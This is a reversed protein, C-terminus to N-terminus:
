VAPCAPNISFWSFSLMWLSKILMQCFSSNFSLMSIDRPSEPTISFILEMKRDMGKIPSMYLTSNPGYMRTPFMARGNAILASICPTIPISSVVVIISSILPTLAHGVGGHGGVVVVEFGCCFV